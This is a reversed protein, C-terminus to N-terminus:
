AKRTVHQTVPPHDKMSDKTVKGARGGLDSLKHCQDTQELGIIVADGEKNIEIRSNPLM